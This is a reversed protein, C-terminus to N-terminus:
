FPGPGFPAKKLSICPVYTYTSTRVQVDLHLEQNRVIYKDLM